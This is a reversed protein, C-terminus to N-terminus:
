WNGDIPRAGYAMIRHMAVASVSAPWALTEWTAEDVSMRDIRDELGM